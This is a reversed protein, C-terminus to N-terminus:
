LRLPHTQRQQPRRLLRELQARQSEQRADRSPAQAQGSGREGLARGELALTEDELLGGPVSMSVSENDAAGGANEERIIAQSLANAFGISHKFDGVTPSFNQGLSQMSASTLTKSFSYKSWNSSQGPSWVSNGDDFSTRSSALTSAAYLKPRSRNYKSQFGMTMARFGPKSRYSTADSPAKSVVSGSRKLGGFNAVSLNREASPYETVPAGLLPLPDSRISAFFSKLISEIELEWGRMSGAWAQGVLANSANGGASDPTWGDSDKRDFTPRMSLRKTFNPRSQEFSTRESPSPLGASVPLVADSSNSWPLPPRSANSSPKVTEDFANPAADAVVRRISPLTNKVYASRSMREAIDALHLDTNLLILSYFITHVVDQAKFGHNPNCECWRSSLGTIIRDFQQTEGKLVLKGCLARLAALISYGAFDFLEMYAQLTRTSLTNKEGLWSAAETKTVDEEDGEFIKRARERYEAGEDVLESSLKMGNAEVSKRPENGDVQVSPLPLSSASHYQTSPTIPSHLASAFTATTATPLAPSRASPVLSTTYSSEIVPSLEEHSYHLREESTTPQLYLRDSKKSEPRDQTNPRNAVTVLWNDDANAIPFATFNRNEDVPSTGKSAIIRDGTSARSGPRQDEEDVHIESLPSVRPAELPAPQGNNNGELSQTTTPSILIEPKRKKVKMRMRASDQTDVSHKPKVSPSRSLPDRHGLSAGTPPTYGSHFIDLNDSHETSSDTTVPRSDGGSKGHPVGNSGLYPDMVKRLSSLSPSPEALRVSLSNNLPLPPPQTTDSTSKKRRRFFSSPKKNLSVPPYSTGTPQDKSGQRTGSTQDKSGQRTGTRPHSSNSSSTRLPAAALDGYELSATRESLGSASRSSGGGFVRKFFGPRERQPGSIKSSPPQFGPSPASASFDPVPPISPVGRISSARVFESARNRVNVPIPPSPNSGSRLDTQTTTKRLTNTRGTAQNVFVPGIATPNQMRRPGAAVMPEPAADNVPPEYRSHVSPVPRGRELMSHGNATPEYMQDMSMSRRGLGIRGSGVLDGYGYEAGSKVNTSEKKGMGGNMRAGNVPGKYTDTSTRIIGIAKSTPRIRNSTTQHIPINSSSNSRRGRPSTAYTSPSDSTAHRDYDSSLSSSYTHGRARQAPRSMPLPAADPFTSKQRDFNTYRLEEDAEEIDQRSFTDLAFLLNDVVSDRTTSSWSLGHSHRPNYGGAAGSSGWASVEEEVNVHARLPQKGKERKRTRRRPPPTTPPSGADRFTERLANKSSTRKSLPIPPSLQQPPTQSSPAATSAAVNGDM